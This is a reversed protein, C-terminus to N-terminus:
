GHLRTLRKQIELRTRAAVAAARDELEAPSEPAAERFPHGVEIRYRVPYPLLGLPGLLPFTPTIPFAPLGLVRALPKLDALLPAQDDPGAIAVPVIPVGARMAERAFGSHFHQVRYRAPLPKTIGDVGEPFVLVLEGADLLRRCDDPTGIVAGASQFARHVPGIGEVFRAVLPRVVRPVPARLLVEAALMAGDFPLLGGHNAVIIAPGTEPIREIHASEVRFWFRHLAWVIPLAQELAVPELGFADASRRRESLARDLRERAEPPVWGAAAELIAPALARPGAPAEARHPSNASVRDRLRELAAQWEANDEPPKEIEFPNRTVATPRGRSPGLPSGPDGDLRPPDTM